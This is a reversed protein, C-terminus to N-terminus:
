VAYAAQSLSTSFLASSWLVARSKEPAGKGEDCHGEEAVEYCRELCRKHVNEQKLGWHGAEEVTEVIGSQCSAKQLLHECAVCLQQPAGGAEEFYSGVKSTSRKTLVM